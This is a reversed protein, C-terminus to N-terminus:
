LYKSLQEPAIFGLNPQIPLLNDLIGASRSVRKALKSPVLTPPPPPNAQLFWRLANGQDAISKGQVSRGPISLNWEDEPHENHNDDDEHVGGRYLCALLLVRAKERTYSVSAQAVPAAVPLDPLAEDEPRGEELSFYARINKSKKVRGEENDTIVFCICQALKSVQPLNLAICPSIIASSIIPGLTNNGESKYQISQDRTQAQEKCVGDMKRYEKDLVIAAVDVSIMNKKRWLTTRFILENPLGRTRRVYDSVRISREPRMFAIRDGKAHVQIGPLLDGMCAMLHPLLPGFDRAGSCGIGLPAVNWSSSTTVDRALRCSIFATHDSSLKSPVYRCLGKQTETALYRVQFRKLDKMSREVPGQIAVVFFLAMIHAPIRDLQLHIMQNDVHRYSQEGTRNGTTTGSHVMSRNANNWQDWYLCEDLVVNGHANMAVCYMELQMTTSADTADWAMGVTVQNNNKSGASSLFPLSFVDGPRLDLMAEAHVTVRAQVAGTANPCVLNPDNPSSTKVRYWQAAKLPPPPSSSTPADASTSSSSRLASSSSTTEFLPMTVSGMYDHKALPDHDFLRLEMEEGSKLLAHASDAGLSVIVTENWVPALTRPIVATRGHCPWEGDFLHVKAYPDSSIRKGLMNRAKAVLERGQLIEIFL